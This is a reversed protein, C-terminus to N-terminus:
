EGYTYYFHEESLVRSIYVNRLECKYLCLINFTNSATSKIFTIKKNANLLFFMLSFLILSASHKYQLLSPLLPLWVSLHFPFFSHPHAHSHLNTSKTIILQPMLHRRLYITALLLCAQPSPSLSLTSFLHSGVCVRVCVCFCVHM